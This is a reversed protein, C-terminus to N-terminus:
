EGLTAVAPSLFLTDNDKLSSAAFSRTTYSIYSVYILQSNSPLTFSFQGNIGTIFVNAQKDTRITAFPLVKRTLSDAVVGKIQKQSFVPVAQILILIPFLFRCM